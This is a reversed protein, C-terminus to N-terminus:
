SAEKSKDNSQMFLFGGSNEESPLKSKNQVIWHNHIRNVWALFEQENMTSKARNCSPCCPIVNEKIYGIDSDIRDLGNYHLHYDSHTDKYANAPESGCYFCNSTVLKKFLEYDINFDEIFRNNKTKFVKYLRKMIKSEVDWIRNTPPLTRLCGCSKTHGSKLKSEEVETTNGCECICKCYHRKSGSSSNKAIVDIVTLMDFKRGILEKQKEALLGRHQYIRACKYSCCNPKNRKDAWFEKGCNLCNKKTYHRIKTSCEM